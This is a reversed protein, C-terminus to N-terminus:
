PEMRFCLGESILEATTGLRLSLNSPGHGSNLGFAVPFPADQFFDRLVDRLDNYPDTCNRMKGFVIGRVAEFKGANRLHTLMRDIRYPAEGTDELFLIADVTNLAYKTGLTAVVLSLCGGELRGEASGPRLFEVQEEVTEPAFLANHLSQRTLACDIEDGILQRTAVNPGHILEVQPWLKRAALHLGTFDSYGVLIKDPPSMDGNLYPLLRLCGYGGRLCFIVKTDTDALSTNLHEARVADPGALYFHHTNDVRVFVRLGWSELLNVAAGLLGQEGGRLQSAPAIISAGDGPKLVM